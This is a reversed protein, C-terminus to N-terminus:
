KFTEGPWNLFRLLRRQTFWAIQGARPRGRKAIESFQVAHPPSFAASTCFYGSANKMARAIAM